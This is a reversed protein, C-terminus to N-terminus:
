YIRFAIFAIIGVVASVYCVTKWLQATKYTSDQIVTGDQNYNFTPYIYFALSVLFLIFCFPMLVVIISEIIRNETPAGM